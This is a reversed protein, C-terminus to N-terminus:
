QDADVEWFGFDSGDGEHAGFYYGVPAEENLADALEVVYEDLDDPQRLALKAYKAQNLERLVEAFKFILDEARLTGHSVTGAYQFIDSM